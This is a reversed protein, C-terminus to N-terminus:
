RQTAELRKIRREEAEHWRRKQEKTRPSADYKITIAVIKPHGTDPDIEELEETAVYTFFTSSLHHIEGTIRRHVDARVGIECSKGWVRNISACLLLLDGKYAPVYFPIDDIIVTGCQQGNTHRFFVAGAIRDMAAALMGGFMKDQSNLDEPFIMAPSNQVASTSIPRSQRKLM